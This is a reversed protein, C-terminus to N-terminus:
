FWLHIHPRIANFIHITEVLYIQLFRSNRDGNYQTYWGIFSMRVDWSKLPLWETSWLYNVQCSLYNQENIWEVYMIISKNSYCNLLVLHWQQVNKKIEFSLTDNIKSIHNIKVVSEPHPSWGGRSLPLTVNDWSWPNQDRAM